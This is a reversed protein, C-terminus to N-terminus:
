IAMLIMSDTMKRRDEEVDVLEEGESFEQKATDTNALSEEDDNYKRDGEIIHNLNTDGYDVTEMIQVENNDDCSM